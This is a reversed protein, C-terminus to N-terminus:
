YNTKGLIVKAVEDAVDDAVTGEVGLSFWNGFFENLESRLEEIYNSKLRQATEAVDVNSVDFGEQELEDVFNAIANTWRTDIESELQSILGYTAAERIQSSVDSLTENLEGRIFPQSFVDYIRDVNEDYDAGMSQAIRQFSQSSFDVM